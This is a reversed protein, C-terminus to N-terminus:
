PGKRWVDGGSKTGNAPNYTIRQNAFGTPATVAGDISGYNTFTNWDGITWPTELSQIVECNIDADLDPGLSAVIWVSVADTGYAYARDEMPEWKGGTAGWYGIGTVLKEGAKFPDMPLSTMYAIPNTIGPNAATGGGIKNGKNGTVPVLSTRNADDAAWPYANNDIYFSEISTALEQAEGQAKSVKARTQAQLFNPIAIAALIGIIAVVILLEILTFGKSMKM